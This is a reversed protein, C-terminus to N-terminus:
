NSNWRAIDSPHDIDRVIGPDDLAIRLVPHMSLLRRAGVDGSCGALEDLLRAPFRVPHGDAGAYTPVVISTTDVTQWRAVKRVSEPDVGPMDAPMLLIWEAAPCSRLIERAGAAISFGMGQAGHVSTLLTDKRALARGLAGDEDRVVVVVRDCGAALACLARVAIPVGDIAQELKSSQGSPDFRRGRGAALLLGICRARLASDAPRSDDTGESRDAGGAAAPTERVDKCPLDDHENM